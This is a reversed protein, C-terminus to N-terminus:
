GASDLLVAVDNCKELNEASQSDTVEDTICRRDALAPSLDRVALLQPGDKAPVEAEYVLQEDRLLHDLSPGLAPKETAAAKSGALDIRTAEDGLLLCDQQSDYVQFERISAFVIANWCREQPLCCEQGLELVWVDDPM